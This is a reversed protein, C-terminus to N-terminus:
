SRLADAPSMKAAKRSPRWVAILTVVSVIILIMLVSLPEIIISIKGNNLIFGFDSEPPITFLSVILSIVIAAAIGFFAGRLALIMGEAIFQKSVDRRLMGVARMTGIEKVREIMIMHFTNILGVMTILLMVLFVGLAIGQLIAVIQTVADMFDNLTGVEFRTDDWPEEDVGSSFMAQMQSQPDNEDEDSEPKLYGGQEAIGEEIMAAVPDMMNMDYLVLSLAQFENEELSLLSNIYGIDSYSATFGLGSVDEYTAKLVFTGVNAQGTVNEFSILFEEGIVIGLEEAAKEPIVIAHEDRIGDMSGQVIKLSEILNQEEDWDIGYVVQQSVNSRFIFKGEIASRKQYEKVYSDVSPLVADVIEVQTIRNVVKKNSLMVDGSIYVHGGLLTEFNRMTNDILGSTLGNVLVIMMVGFAIALGLLNSRRKQRKVNRYAIKLINNM